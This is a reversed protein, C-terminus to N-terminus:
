INTLLDEADDEENDPNDSDHYNNLGSEFRSSQSCGMHKFKNINNDFAKNFQSVHKNRKMRSKGSKYLNGENDVVLLHNDQNTDTMSPLNRFVVNTNADLGNDVVLSSTNLNCICATKKVTLYNTDINTVSPRFDSPLTSPFLPRTQHLPGNPRSNNVSNNGNQMNISFPLSNINSKFQNNSSNGCCSM